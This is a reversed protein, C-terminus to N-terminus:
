SHIDDAAKSYLESSLLSSSVQYIFNTASTEIRSLQAICEDM